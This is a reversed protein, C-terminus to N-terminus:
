FLMLQWQYLHHTSSKRITTIAENAQKLWQLQLFARYYKHCACHPLLLHRPFSKPTEPRPATKCNRSDAPASNTVKPAWHLRGATHSVGSYSSLASVATCSNWLQEQLWQWSTSSVTEQTQTSKLCIFSGSLFTFQLNMKRIGVESSTSDGEWIWYAVKFCSFLWGLFFGVFVGCCFFGM